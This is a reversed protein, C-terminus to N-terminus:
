QPNPVVSRKHIMTAMILTTSSIRGQFTLNRLTHRINCKRAIKCSSVRGIITHFGRSCYRLFLLLLEMNRQCCVSTCPRWVFLTSDNCWIMLLMWFQPLSMLDEMVTLMRGFMSLKLLSSCFSTENAYVFIIRNDQYDGGMAVLQLTIVLHYCRICIQIYRLSLLLYCAGQKVM